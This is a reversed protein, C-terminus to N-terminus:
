IMTRTTATIKMARSCYMTYPVLNPRAIRATDKLKSVADNIPIGVSRMMEIVNIIPEASAATAPMRKATEYGFISRSIPMMGPRFAKTAATNPPIPLTGPATTPPNIMPMMSDNTPPLRKEFKVGAIAKMMRMPMRSNRGEPRNPFYSGSFTHHSASLPYRSAPPFISVRRWGGGAVRWGGAKGPPQAVQDVGGDENGNEDARRIAEVTNRDAADGVVPSDDHQHADVDDEGHRQVDDISVRTLER